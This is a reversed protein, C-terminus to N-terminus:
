LKTIDRPIKKFVINKAKLEKSSINCKDAYILYGDAKTKITRLFATNLTTIKNKCYHFYYATGRYVGLFAKNDNHQRNEIVTQTETYWIYERIKETAIEGNM